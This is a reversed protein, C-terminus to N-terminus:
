VFTITFQRLSSGSYTVQKEPLVRIAPLSQAAAANKAAHRLSNLLMWFFDGGTCEAESLVPSTFHFNFVGNNTSNHSCSQKGRLYGECVIRDFNADQM